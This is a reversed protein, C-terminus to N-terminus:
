AAPRPRRPLADEIVAMAERKRGADVLDRFRDMWEPDAPLFMSSRPDTTDCERCCVMTRRRGRHWHLTGRYPGLQHGRPCVTPAAAALGGDALRRYRWQGFVPLPMPDGFERGFMRELTDYPCEVHGSDRRGTAPLDRLARSVSAAGRGWRGTASM